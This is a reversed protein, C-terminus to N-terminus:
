HPACAPSTSGRGMGTWGVASLAFWVTAVRVAGFRDFTAHSGIDGAQSADLGLAKQELMHTLM